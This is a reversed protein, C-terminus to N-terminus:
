TEMSIVCKELIFKIFKRILHFFSFLKTHYSLILIQYFKFFNPHHYRKKIIVSKLTAYLPLYGKYVNHYFWEFEKQIRKNSFGKLNLFPKIREMEGNMNENMIGRKKCIEYLVTGPYPFFIYIKIRNPLSKRNCEVTKRFDDLTEGPLGIMNNTSVKIGYSKALRINKIIDKNTYYRKLFKERIRKSGSELGINIFKFNAKKFSQFLPSYNLKPIIRLNVGFTLPKQLQHNFTELKTCFELAYNMDAGITEVEFYIENTKPFKELIDELEEKINDFSRFRVYKGPAIKKLSHNCCYNCNFPCGRGLLIMYRSSNSSINLWKKWMGRDPFPLEDLDQIFERTASKEIKSGNRIWLNSIKKPNLRKELQQILELTPFEGEGICAADFFSKIFDEPNLSIHAGGVLLYIFYYKRKIYRAIKSIFKYESYVATFCILKPKFNEIYYDILNIKSARTLVLADTTHNKSKLFSSIYSIGFPIEYNNIIPRDPIKYKQTTYIFLINM